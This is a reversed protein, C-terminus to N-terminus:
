TLSLASHTAAKLEGSYVFATANAASLVGVGGGRCVAAGTRALPYDMCARTANKAAEFFGQGKLCNVGTAAFPYTLVGSVFGRQAANAVIKSKNHVKGDANNNEASNAALAAMAVPGSTLGNRGYGVAAYRLLSAPSLRGPKLAGSTEKTEFLLTAIATEAGAAAAATIVVKVVYPLSSDSLYQAVESAVFSRAGGGTANKGAAPAATLLPNKLLKAVAKTPSKQAALNSARLLFATLPSVAVGAAAQSVITDIPNTM